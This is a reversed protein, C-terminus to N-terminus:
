LVTEAQSFSSTLTWQAPPRSPSILFLSSGWWCSSIGVLIPQFKDAKRNSQGQHCPYGVSAKQWLDSGCMQDLQQKVRTLYTLLDAFSVYAIFLCGSVKQGEFHWSFRRTTWVLWFCVGFPIKNFVKTDTNMLSIRRYNEKRPIDKHSKLM